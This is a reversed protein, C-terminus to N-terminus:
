YLFRKRCDECVRQQVGECFYGIKESKGWCDPCRTGRNEPLVTINEWEDMRSSSNVSCGCYSCTGTNNVPAGCSTCLDNYKRAAMGAPGRSLKRRANKIQELEEAEHKKREAEIEESYRNYEEEDKENCFECRVNSILYPFGCKKCISIRKKNKMYELKHNIDRYLWHNQISRTLERDKGFITHYIYRMTQWIGAMIALAQSREAIEMLDTKIVCYADEPLHMRPKIVKAHYERLEDDSFRGFYYPDLTVPEMIKHLILDYNSDEEGALEYLDMEHM